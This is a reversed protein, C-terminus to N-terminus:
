LLTCTSGSQTTRGRLAFIFMRQEQPDLTECLLNALPRSEFYDNNSPERLVLDRARQWPIRCVQAVVHALDMSREHVYMARTVRVRNHTAEAEVQLQACADCLLVRTVRDSNM